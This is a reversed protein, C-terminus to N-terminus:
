NITRVYHYKVEYTILIEALPPLRKVIEIDVIQSDLVKGELGRKRDQDLAEEIAEILDNRKSDLENGRVFGRIEYQITGHRRGMAPAGQTITERMENATNILIAPFQTIALKEVEFPERTVLIPKPDEIQSLVIVIDKIIDERISM